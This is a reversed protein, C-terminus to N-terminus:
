SSQESLGRYEADDYYRYVGDYSADRRFDIDNLLVGLVPARVHRLQQVAYSLAARDTRGARAVVLVGDVFTGLVAADTVINVPPTDIIILDYDRKANDLLGRMASSELLPTPNHESRGSTLFHLSRNEGLTVQQLATELRATGSLVQHLGPERRASLAVHVAGRRMDADVLLTRLGRETATLALNVVNTTKGDGSLPSTLLLTKIPRDSRAFALNTQLIGYSELIVNGPNAVILHISSRADLAGAALAHGNQSSPPEAQGFFTYRSRSNSSTSASGLSRRQSETSAKREETILPIRSRGKAMHPILGLVPLGTMTLVDNRTHISRDLRERAFGAALGLLLGTVLGGLMNVHPRPRSPGGPAVATDVVEISADGAAEAIQAEKLRTQLLNYVEEYGKAKRDLRAFEVQKRPVTQLQRDFGQLATDLSAVQNELGRLYTIAIGYLQAEIENIRNELVKVDTDQPTRRLLLSTREDEVAALSSLLQAAAQNRLLFPLGLLRRYPSPDGPKQRSAAQTVENLSQALAQREADVASRESQKTILRSVQSSAEVDPAIVRARERYERFTDEAAALQGAVRDIQDQLFLVMTHAESRRAEQRRHYYRGVIANPVQWVLEPDTDEYQVNIVQAGRNPQSVTLASAVGSATSTRSNLMFEIRPYQRADSSLIFTAGGALVKAGPSVYALHRKDTEDILESLAFRGDPLLTLQYMGERANAAVRIERFLQSRPIRHPLVLRLQLALSDTAKESLSRSRLIQTETEVSISKGVSEFIDPLSSQKNELRLSASAQYIPTMRATFIAAGTTTAVICLLILWRSRILMGTLEGIPSGVTGFSPGGAEPPPLATAAESHVPQRTM